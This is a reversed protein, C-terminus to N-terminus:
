QSKKALGIEHFNKGQTGGFIGIELKHVSTNNTQSVGLCLVMCLGRRKLALVKLIFEILLKRNRPGLM